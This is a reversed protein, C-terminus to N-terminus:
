YIELMVIHVLSAQLKQINWLFSLSMLTWTDLSYLLSYPKLKRDSQLRNNLTIRMSRDVLKESLIHTRGLMFEQLVM